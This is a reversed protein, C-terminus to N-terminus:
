ANAWDEKVQALTRNIKVIGGQTSIVWSVPILHAQGSTDGKLKITDVDVVAEVVAFQEAQATTVPMGAKIEKAEIM